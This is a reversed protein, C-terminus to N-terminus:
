AWVLPRYKESYIFVGKTESPISGASVRFIDKDQLIESVLSKMKKIDNRSRAYYDVILFGRIVYINDTETASGFYMSIFNVKEATAYSMPTIERHIRESREKPTSPNSLLSALEANKWCAAYLEDLLEMDDLM